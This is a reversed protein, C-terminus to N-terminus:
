SISYCVHYIASIPPLLFWSIIGRLQPQIVLHRMHNKIFDTLKRWGFHFKIATELAVAGTSPKNASM